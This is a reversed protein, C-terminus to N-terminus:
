GLPRTAASPSITQTSESAFRVALSGIRCPNRKVARPQDLDNDRARKIVSDAYADENWRDRIFEHISAMPDRWHSGLSGLEGGPQTECGVTPHIGNLACLYFGSGHPIFGRYSRMNRPLSLKFRVVLSERCTHRMRQM